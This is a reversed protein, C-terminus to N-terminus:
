HDHHGAQAAQPQGVHKVKMAEKGEQWKPASQWAKGVEALTHSRQNRHKLEGPQVENPLKM